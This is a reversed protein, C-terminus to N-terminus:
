PEEHHAKEMVLVFWSVWNQEVVPINKIIKPWPPVSVLPSLVHGLSASAGQRRQKLSKRHMQQQKKFM